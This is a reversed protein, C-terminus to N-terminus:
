KVDNKSVYSNRNIGICEYNVQHMVASAYIRLILLHTYSAGIYKSDARIVMNEM